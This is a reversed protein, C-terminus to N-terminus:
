NLRLQNFYLETYKLWNFYSSSPGAVARPAQSLLEGLPGALAPTAAVVGSKGPPGPLVSVGMMGRGASM